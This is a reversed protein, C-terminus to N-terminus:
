GYPEDIIERWREEDGPIERFMEVLAAVPEPFEGELEEARSILLSWQQRLKEHINPSVHQQQHIRDRMDVYFDTNFGDATIPAIALIQNGGIAILEGAFPKTEQFTPIVDIFEDTM